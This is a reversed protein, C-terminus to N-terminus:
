LIGMLLLTNDDAAERGEAGFAKVIRHGTFAEASVHSLQEVAEQSRRTTRRLRPRHEVACRFAEM